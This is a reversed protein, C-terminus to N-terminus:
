LWIDNAVSRLFLASSIHRGSGAAHRQAPLFNVVGDIICQYRPSLNKAEENIIYKIVYMYHCQHLM